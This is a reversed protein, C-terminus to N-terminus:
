LTRSAEELLPDLFKNQEDIISHNKLTCLIEYLVRDSIKHGEVEELKTKLKSWERIGQALLKLILRYRNKSIRYILFNDLEKRAIEIAERWIDELEKKQSIRTYGYYTLWGIIGDLKEVTKEIEERPARYNLQSFGKELFDISEYRSLRRTRVELYARGYLSADPNKLFHYIVGMESGSLVFSLNKLHDYAYAIANQVISGIVGSARQIEDFVMIIRYGNEEAIHDLATLIQTLPPKDKGWSFEITLGSISIGRIISFVRRIHEYLSKIRSIRTIFDSICYSLLEYFERWSKIVSRFDIFIYPTNSEELATLILSTKGTRRLGTVITLPQNFFKKIASLEEDFDYLDERRRKPKPDFLM